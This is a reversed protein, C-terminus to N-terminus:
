EWVIMASDSGVAISFPGQDGKARDSADVDTIKGHAVIEGDVMSVEVEGIVRREGNTYEVLPVVAKDLNM